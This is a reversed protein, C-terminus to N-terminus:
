GRALAAAATAASFTQEAPDEGTRDLSIRVATVQGVGQGCSNVTLWPSCTHRWARGLAGSSARLEGARQARRAPPRTEAAGCRASGLQGASKLLHPFARQWDGLAPHLPDRCVGMSREKAACPFFEQLAHM